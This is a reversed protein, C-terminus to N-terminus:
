RRLGCTDLILVYDLTGGPGRRYVEGHDKLTISELTHELRLLRRDKPHRRLNDHAMVKTQNKHVTFQIFSPNTYHVRMRSTVYTKSHSDNNDDSIGVIVVLNSSRRTGRSLKWNMPNGDEVWHATDSLVECHVSGGKVRIPAEDDSRFELEGELLYSVAVGVAAGVAVATILKPAGSGILSSRDLKVAVDESDISDDFDAM